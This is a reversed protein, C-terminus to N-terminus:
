RTAACAEDTQALLSKLADLKGHAMVILRQLADENMGINFLAFSDARMAWASTGPSLGLSAVTWISLHLMSALKRHKGASAPRDQFRVPLTIEDGFYWRRLLESGIECYTFGWRKAEAEALSINEDEVLQFIEAYDLDPQSALVIKGLSHLLGVTYAVASDQNLQLAMQEMVYATALSYEWLEGRAMGLAEVARNFIQNGSVLAVLKYVEQFGIRNVAEELDYARSAAGYYASNSLRLVQATLSPDVKVLEIIEHPNSNADCLLSLLRPLIAPAPPLPQINDLIEEATM